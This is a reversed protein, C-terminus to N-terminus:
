IKERRVPVHSPINRPILADITSKGHNKRIVGNIAAPKAPKEYKQPEFSNVSIRRGSVFFLQCLLCDEPMRM